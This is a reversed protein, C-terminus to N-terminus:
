PAVELAEAAGFAQGGSVAEAHGTPNHRKWSADIAERHPGVMWPVPKALVPRVGAGLVVVRQKPMAHLDSVDLIRERVAQTSTSGGGRSSSVSHQTREFEGILRSVSELFQSDALGAGVIRRTSAGWLKDMGAKGWAAVGQEWSQLFTMVCIGRSGFHSYMDPLESWRCVNAAEDLVVVMPVGLRGDKLHKAYEEAATMVAVNMATVLPGASAVGEKSMSYLTDNSRVFAHPNFERRGPRGPTVWQTAQDNILFAVLQKATDYVGARQKAPLNLTGDVSAAMITRGARELIRQPTDDIMDSLWLYVDTIPRGGVAAALLLGGLHTLAAGDFYADVRAGAPRTADAFVKALRMASVEDTIFSLPNWWWTAPEDVLQQPDFVWVEAGTKAARVDRTADVLDRKNSTALVAGPADVIAPIALSTTKGGRPGCLNIVVDEWGSFLRTNGVVTWGLTLGPPEASGLREATARVVKETMEAIEKGKGMHAAAYDIALEASRRSRVVRVGLGVAALVAAALAAAVVTATTTWAAEGQTLALLVELPTRGSTAQHGHLADDVGLAVWATGSSVVVVGVIGAPIMVAPDLGSIRTRRTPASM